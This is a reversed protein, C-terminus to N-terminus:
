KGFEELLSEMWRRRYAQVQIERDRGHIMKLYGRRELWDEVTDYSHDLRSMIMERTLIIDANSGDLAFCIYEEKDELDGNGDWLNKISNRLCLEIRKREKATFIM